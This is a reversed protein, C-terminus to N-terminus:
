LTNSLVHPFANNLMQIDLTAILSNKPKKGVDLIDFCEAGMGAGEGEVLVGAAVAHGNAGVKSLCPKSHM